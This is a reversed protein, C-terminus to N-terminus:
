FPIFSLVWLTTGVVDVLIGEARSGLYGMGANRGGGAVFIIPVLPGAILCLQLAHLIPARQPETSTQTFTNAVTTETYDSANKPPLTKTSARNSGKFRLEQSIYRYHM